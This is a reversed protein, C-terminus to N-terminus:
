CIADAGVVISDCSQCAHKHGCVNFLEKAEKATKAVLALEQGVHGAADM